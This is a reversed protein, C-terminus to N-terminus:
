FTYIVNVVPKSGAGFQRLVFCVCKERFFFFVHTMQIMASHASYWRRM